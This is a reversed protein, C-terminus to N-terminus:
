VDISILTHLFNLPRDREALVIISFLKRVHQPLHQALETSTLWKPEDKDIDRVWISADPDPRTEEFFRQVQEVEWSTGSAEAPELFSLLLDRKVDLEDLSGIFSRDGIRETRFFRPNWTKFKTPGNAHQALTDL